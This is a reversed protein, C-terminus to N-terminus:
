TSRTLLSIVRSVTQEGLPIDESKLVVEVRRAVMHPDCELIVGKDCIEDIALLVIRLNQFLIRKEVEKRLIINLSDYYCNLVSQLMLENEYSAGLVYFYM